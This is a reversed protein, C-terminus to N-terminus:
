WNTETEDYIGCSEEYSEEYSDEYSDENMKALAENILVSAEDIDEQTQLSGIIKSIENNSFNAACVDILYKKYNAISKKSSIKKM